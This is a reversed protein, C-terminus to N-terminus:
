DKTMDDIREHARTISKEQMDVRGKLESLGGELHSLRKDVDKFGTKVDIRLETVNNEINSLSSELKASQVTKGDRRSQLTSLGVALTVIGGVIGLVSVFMSPSIGEM